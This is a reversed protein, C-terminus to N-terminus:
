ARRGRQMLRERLPAPVVKALTIAAHLQWPFRLVRRGGEVGDAIARAARDAEWFFPMWGDGRPSMESEVYGPEILTATLRSGVLDARLSRTYAAVAAKSAVYGARGPLPLRGAISGVIGIRGRGRRRMHPLVARVTHIVGNVNVAIQDTDGLPEDGELPSQGFTGANAIVTDIRAGGLEAAARDPVAAVERWDRVDAPAVVCRRGMNDLRLALAHLRDERRASV